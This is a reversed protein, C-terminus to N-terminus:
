QENIQNKKVKKNKNWGTHAIPVPRDAVGWIAWATWAAILFHSLFDYPSSTASWIRINYPPLTVGSLISSSILHGSISPASTPPAAKFAFDNARIQMNLGYTSLSYPRRRQPLITYSALINYTEFCTLVKICPSSTCICPFLELPTLVTPTHIFYTYTSTM